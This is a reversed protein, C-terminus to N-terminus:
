YGFMQINFITNVVNITPTAILIEIFQTLLHVYMYAIYM